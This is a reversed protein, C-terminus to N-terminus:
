ALIFVTQSSLSVSQTHAVINKFTQFLVIIQTSSRSGYQIIYIDASAKFQIKLICNASQGSKLRTTGLIRVIWFFVYFFLTQFGCLYQAKCPTSHFLCSGSVPCQCWGWDSDCMTGKIHFLCSGSVPCQCLWATVIIIILLIIHFLCSGSVPCQCLIKDMIDGGYPQQTFFVHARYLANVCWDSHEFIREKKNHFLCSGSVPCQCWNPEQIKRMIFYIHFLCSGSVPCQCLVRNIDRMVSDPLHFLCSGSVPCQCETKITREKFGHNDHFLCSGSVPCQCLFGDVDYVGKQVCHFLCSGSVPCQCLIKNQEVWHSKDQTFFVHARYLANVCNM